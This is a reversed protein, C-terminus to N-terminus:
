FDHDTSIEVFVTIKPILIKKLSIYSFRSSIHYTEESLEADLYLINKRFSVLNSCLEMLMFLISWLIYKCYLDSNKVLGEAFLSSLM